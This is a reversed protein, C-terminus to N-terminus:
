SWPLSMNRSSGADGSSKQEKGIPAFDNSRLQLSLNFKGRFPPVFVFITGPGLFDGPNELREM